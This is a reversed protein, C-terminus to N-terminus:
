IPLGQRASSTSIAASRARGLGSLTQREEPYKGVMEATPLHALGVQLVFQQETITLEEELSEPLMHSEFSALHERLESVSQYAVADIDVDLNAAREANTPHTDTPHAIKEKEVVVILRSLAEGRESLAKTLYNAFTRCLNGIVMGKNLADINGERLERWKHAVLSIKVLASILAASPAISAAKKDAELERKRGIKREKSAFIAMLISLLAFGPLKAIDSAHEFNRMRDLSRTLQAYIPAFRESYFTDGGVFHGLEHAIVAIFERPKLIRMLPASLYLTEGTLKGPEGVVVVNTSTVFFNPELGVVIHDPRAAGMRQAISEIVRILRGYESPELRKGVITVELGRGLTFISRLLSLAAAIAGLGIFALIFVPISSVALVFGWYVASMFILADVLVLVITFLISFKVLISFVLAVLFRSHGIVSAVILYILPISVSAILALWSANRLLLIQEFDTCNREHQQLIEPLSCAAQIRDLDHTADIILTCIIGIAPLAILILLPWLYRFKHLSWPRRPIAARAPSSSVAARRVQKQVLGGLEAASTVQLEGANM